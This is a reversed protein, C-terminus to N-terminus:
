FIYHNIMVEDEMTKLHSLLTYEMNGFNFKYLFLGKKLDVIAIVMTSLGLQKLHLNIFIEVDIIEIDTPFEIDGLRRDENFTFYQIFQDDDFFQWIEIYPFSEPNTFNTVPSFRV